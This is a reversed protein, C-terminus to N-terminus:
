RDDPWGWLGVVVHAADGAVDQLSAHGLLEQLKTLAAPDHARRQLYLTAFTHRLVHPHCHEPAVGAAAMLPRVINALATASLPRTPAAAADPFRGDTTQRGLRPFLLPNYAAEQPRADLWATLTRQV